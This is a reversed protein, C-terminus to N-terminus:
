QAILLTWFKFVFLKDRNTIIEELTRYRKVVEKSFAYSM